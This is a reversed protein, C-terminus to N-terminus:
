RAAARPSAAGTALVDEIHADLDGAEVEAEIGAYRNGLAAHIDRELAV